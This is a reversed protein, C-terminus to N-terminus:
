RDLALICNLITQVSTAYFVKNIKEFDDSARHYDPHDEVGFYVFPIKQKHFNAQDSQNTWDNNGTAPNDHGFMLKIGDPYKVKELRAQVDPYSFGGSAYLEGKDGRAVMDMNINLIINEKQLDIAKVFHASGRLGMEEADFFAFILRHQPASKKFYEAMALLAAVGSANDDAGNHIAGNRIGVHDYHASIVITEKKKGPVVALINTGNLGEKVQFTQVYDAVFAEVGVKRLESIIYASAKESGPTGTKRGEMADTSLYKLNQILRSSDFSFQAFVGAVLLSFFFTLFSKKM